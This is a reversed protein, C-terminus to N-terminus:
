MKSRRTGSARTKAILAKSLRQKLTQVLRDTVALANRDGKDKIM